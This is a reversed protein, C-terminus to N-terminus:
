CCNRRLANRVYKRAKTIDEYGLLKKCLKREEIDEKPSGWSHVTRKLIKASINGDCFEYLTDITNRSQTISRWNIM